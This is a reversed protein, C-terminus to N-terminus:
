SSLDDPLFPNLEATVFRSQEDDKNRRQFGFEWFFFAFPNDRPDRNSFFLFSQAARHSGSNWRSVRKIIPSWCSVKNKISTGGDRARGQRLQWGSPSLAIMHRAVAGVCDGDTILGGHLALAGM